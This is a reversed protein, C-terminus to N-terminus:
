RFNKWFLAKTFRTLLPIKNILKDILYEIGKYFIDHHINTYLSKIDCSNLFTDETCKAILRELLDTRYIWEILNVRKFHAIHFLHAPIIHLMESIGSTYYVPRAVTPWGEILLNETINIYKSNQNKIIKNLEKSIHLKPNVYFNSTKYNCNILYKYENDTLINQFKNAYNIIKQKCNIFSQKWIFLWYYQESDLHAQCQGIINPHLFKDAHKIVIKNSRIKTM